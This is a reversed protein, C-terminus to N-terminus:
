RPLAASVAQTGLAGETQLDRLFNLLMDQVVQDFADTVPVPELGKLNSHLGITTHIAHKYSRTVPEGSPPSYTCKMEYGDVVHAGVLGYTLGTLIGKGIAGGLNGVNNLTIELQGAQVPSEKAPETFVRTAALVRTTRKLVDSELQKKTKGNTQFAVKVHVPQLQATPKISLYDASRFQPDLYSKTALCGTCAISLIVLLAAAQLSGALASISLGLHYNTKKSSM